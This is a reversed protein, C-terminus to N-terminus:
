LRSVKSTVPIESFDVRIALVGTTYHKPLIKWRIRGDYM